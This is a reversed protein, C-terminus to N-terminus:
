ELVINEITLTGNGINIDGQLTTTGTGSSYAVDGQKEHRRNYDNHNGTIIKM